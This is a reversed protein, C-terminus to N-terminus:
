LMDRPWTRSGLAFPADRSDTAYRKKTPDFGTLKMQEAVWDLDESTLGAKRLNLYQQRMIDKRREGLDPSLHRLGIERAIKAMQQSAIGNLTEVSPKLSYAKIGLVGLTLPVVALSLWTCLDM